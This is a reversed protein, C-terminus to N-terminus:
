MAKYRPNSIYIIKQDLSRGRKRNVIGRELSWAQCGALAGSVEGRGKQGIGLRSAVGGNGDEKDGGSAGSQNSKEGDHRRMRTKLASPDSCAIADTVSSTANRQSKEVSRVTTYRVRKSAPASKCDPHSDGMGTLSGRTEELNGICTTDLVVQDTEDGSLPPFFSLTKM